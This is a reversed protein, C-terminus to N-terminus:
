HAAKHRMATHELNVILSRQAYEDGEFIQFLKTFALVRDSMRTTPANMETKLTAILVENDKIHKVHSAARAESSYANSM